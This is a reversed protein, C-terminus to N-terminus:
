EESEFINELEVINNELNRIDPISLKTILYQFMIWLIKMLQKHYKRGVYYQCNVCCINEQKIKKSRDQM